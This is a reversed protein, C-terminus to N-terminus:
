RGGKGVFSLGHKKTYAKAPFRLWSPRWDAPALKKATNRLKAVTAKSKKWDEAPQLEDLIGVLAARSRIGSWFADDARWPEVTELNLLKALPLDSDDISLRESLAVSLFYLLSDDEYEVLTNLLKETNVQWSKARHKVGIQESMGKGADDVLKYLASAVISPRHKKPDLFTFDEIEVRWESLLLTLTLALSVHPDDILANQVALHRHSGVLMSMPNTLEPQPASATKGSTSSAASSTSRGKKKYGVFFEVLGNRLKTSYYVCGGNALEAKQYMYSDFYEGSNVVKWGEAEFEGIKFDVAALQLQWFQDLDVFYNGSDLRENAFLDERTEGKYLSVDFLANEMPIQGKNGTVWQKVDWSSTPPRKLKVFRELQTPNATTLQELAGDHLKGSEAMAIIKKPLGGIALHQRVARESMNFISAIEEVSKGTKALATFAKWRDLDTMSERVVNEALSIELRETWNLETVDIAPIDALGAAGAGAVRLKGAIVEYKGKGNLAVTPPNIIGSSEISKAMSAIAADDHKSRVNVSSEVLDKLPVRILRANNLQENM